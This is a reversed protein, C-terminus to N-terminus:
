EEDFICLRPRHDLDLMLKTDLDTHIRNSVYVRMEMMRHMPMRRMLMLMGTKRMV